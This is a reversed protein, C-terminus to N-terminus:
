SLSWGLFALLRSGSCRSWTVVMALCWRRVAVAGPCVLDVYGWRLRRSSNALPFCPEASCSSSSMSSAGVIDYMAGRIGMGQSAAWFWAQRGGDEIGVGSVGPAVLVAGELLIRRRSAAATRKPSGSRPTEGPARLLVCVSSWPLAKLLSVAGALTAVALLLLSLLSKAKTNSQVIGFAALEPNSSSSVLVSAQVVMAPLPSAGKLLLRPFRWWRPCGGDGVKSCAGSGGGDMSPWIQAPFGPIALVLLIWLWGLPPMALRSADVALRFSSAHGPWQSSCDPPDVAASPRPLPHRQPLHIKPLPWAAGPLLRHCRLPCSVALSTASLGSSSHWPLPSLCERLLAM